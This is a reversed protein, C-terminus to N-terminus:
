GDLSSTRDEVFGIRLGLVTTPDAWAVGGPSPPLLARGLVARTRELSGVGLVVAPQETDEALVISSSGLSFVAHPRESRSGFVASPGRRGLLRVYIDAAAAVSRVPLHVEALRVAGSRHPRRPPPPWKERSDATEIRRVLGPLPTGGADLEIDDWEGDVGEYVSYHHRLGARDLHARIDALDGFRLFVQTITSARAAPVAAVELYARVLHIRGHRGPARPSVTVELGLRQSFTEAALRLNPVGVSAHDLSLDPVTVPV